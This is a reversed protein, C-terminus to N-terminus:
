CIIVSACSKRKIHSEFHQLHIERIMDFSWGIELLSYQTLETDM